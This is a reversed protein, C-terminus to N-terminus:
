LVAFKNGIHTQERACQNIPVIEKGTTNQVEKQNVAHRTRNDRVEKWQENGKGSVNGVVKRSSLIMLPGQRTSSSPVIAKDINKAIVHETQQEANKNGMLDPHIRWCDIMDHGQLKCEKCYKPLYDYNITVWETRVGRTTENEIDMRVKKPLDTLLDVLVKVRACSPRTKNITALDLHLPKGVASALSFLCEKVFYNPLLNPFSIWAM